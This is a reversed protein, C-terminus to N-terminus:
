GGYHWPTDSMILSPEDKRIEAEVVEGVVLAHDGGDIVDRLECELVQTACELIPAGTKGITFAVDGFRGKEPSAPKFFQEVIKKDSKSIFNVSFVKGSKLSELSHTGQRVGLVVKPPKMSCQTLWSGTFAHYSNGDKLGIVYLGYPIRRLVNRKAEENMVFFLSEKVKSSRSVGVGLFSGM